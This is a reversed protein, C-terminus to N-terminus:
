RKEKLREIIGELRDFVLKASKAKEIWEDPRSNMLERLRAAFRGKSVNLNQRVSDIILRVEEDDFEFTM